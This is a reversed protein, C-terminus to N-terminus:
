LLVFGLANNVIDTVAKLAANIAAEVLILSMGEMTLMFTRATNKQMELMVSAEGEDIKNTLALKEILALTLSLKTMEVEAYDKVLPWKKDFEVKAASIMGPLIKEVEINAM